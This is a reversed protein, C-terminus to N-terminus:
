SGRLHTKQMVRTSLFWGILPILNRYEEKQKRILHLMRTYVQEDAHVFIYPIELYEM